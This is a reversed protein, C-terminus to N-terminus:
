TVSSNSARSGSETRVRALTPASRILRQTYPHRPRNVVLDTVDSEVILGHQLVIIRDCIGAVSGLDHSIFLLSTGSSRLALLLELVQRRNASDLASVPEDLILLQPETILARAIAVRQRQGGSLEAPFRELLTHELKMREFYARVKAEVDTASLKGQVLLPEAVSQSVTVDPDLSRLPDQFVYQVVGRRRFDRWASAGFATVHEGAIEISGASPKVLGLVARALSSKGAGTEGIVGVAEGRQVRFSADHLAAKQSGAKGYAVSLGRVDLAPTADPPM